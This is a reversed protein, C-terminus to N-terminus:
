FRATDSLRSPSSPPEADPPIDAALAFGPRPLRTVFILNFVDGPRAGAPLKMHLAARDLVQGDQPHLMVVFEGNSLAVQVTARLHQGLELKALFPFNAAHRQASAGSPDIAAVPHLANFVAM